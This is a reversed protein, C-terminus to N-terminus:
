VEEDYEKLIGDDTKLIKQEFIVGKVVRKENLYTRYFNIRLNKM